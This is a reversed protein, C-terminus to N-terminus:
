PKRPTPVSPKKGPGTSRRVNRSVGEFGHNFIRATRQIIITNTKLDYTAGKIQYREVVRSDIIEEAYMDM